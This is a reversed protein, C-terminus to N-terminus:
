RVLDQLEKPPRGQRLARRNEQDIKEASRLEPSEKLLQRYAAERYQSLIGRLVRVRPSDYDETSQPSLKQYSRSDITRLLAQRLTKGGVKVEGHLELWRDYAMQGNPMNMATLDIQGRTERPPTFGHGLLAFENLIKDDKLQTWTVPSVMDPLLFGEAKLVPEGLLNRKPPLQEALGPIKNYVSDLMGRVERLVGDDAVTAKSQGLAGSFPVMSGVYNNVLTQGFQEPNSLANAINTIGTLYTKNAINRFVAMLTVSAAADLAPIDKAEAYKYGEVSDAILGLVTSFPDQRRYSYYKDGVKVSYPQWGVAMLAEREAKNKPGGGTLNGALAATGAVVMFSGAFALRGIAESRADAAQQTTAAATERYLRRAEYASVPLTRQLAFNLLNTPTRIFPLVFRLAPWQNVANSLHASVSVLPNGTGTVLPTSFTADRSYEFARQSAAGLEPNWNDRNGMYDRVFQELNGAPMRGADIEVQAAQTARRLVEAESYAAGSRVQTEFTDEVWQAAARADGGFRELAQGYLDAKLRARYGVQKFFEDEALLFRSPLNVVNRGIWNVAAEGTTGEAPAVYRLAADQRLGGGTFARQMVERTGVQDIMGQDMAFALRALRFAEISESFTYGIQAAALRTTRMDGRLAAGLMRELPLYLGVMANASINVAHTVPGSLISNMWYEVWVNGHRQGEIIDLCRGAGGTEFALAAERMMRDVAARGGHEEIIGLIARAREENSMAEMGPLVPM